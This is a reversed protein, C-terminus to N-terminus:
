LIKMASVKEFRDCLWVQAVRIGAICLWSLIVVSSRRRRRCMDEGLRRSPLGYYKAITERNLAKAFARRDLLRNMWRVQYETDLTSVCAETARIIVECANIIKLDTEAQLRDVILLLPLSGQLLQIGLFYPVFSLDPDVDLIHSINDAASLASAITTTFSQTAMFLDRDDFLSVPDWKGSLLVRSVDIVHKAYAVVTKTHHADQATHMDLMSPPAAHIQEFHTLSQSYTDLHALIQAEVIQFQQSDACFRGLTHHNKLHHYDLITGVITMLPLFWGYVNHGTCEFSPFRTRQTLVAPDYMFTGSQYSAEDLPLLLDECESDLLANQRNYCLALHRDQIYLLWWTRRREELTEQDMVPSGDSEPPSVSDAAELGGNMFQALGTDFSFSNLGFWPDNEFELMSPNQATPTVGPFTSEAGKSIPEKNLRLERALAFAAHWWRMSMAKEESASTIAAIHIYTVVDDLTGSNEASGNAFPELQSDSMKRHSLCSERFEGSEGMAPACGLDVHVMPRLLQITLIRLRHCVNTRKSHSWAVLEAGGTEAAVWLMSALLAPSCKRPNEKSMVSVSRFIFAHVHKCVPHMNTNFQSAFYLELLNAAQAETLFSLIYPMLPKLVPYKLSKTSFQFGGSHTESGTEIADDNNGYFGIRMHEERASHMGSTSLPQGSTHARGTLNMPQSANSATRMDIPYGQGANRYDDDPKMSAKRAMSLPDSWINGDLTMTSSYTRSGTHGRNMAPRQMMPSMGHDTGFSNQRLDPMSIGVSPMFSSTHQQEPTAAPAHTMTNQAHQNNSKNHAHVGQGNDSSGFKIVVKNARELVTSRSPKGRKFVARAYECVDQGACRSCPQQGDCKVRRKNCLDCARTIRRKKTREGDEDEDM